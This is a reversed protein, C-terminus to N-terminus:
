CPNDQNGTRTESTTAEAIPPFCRKLVGGTAGAVAEAIKLKAEVNAPNKIM